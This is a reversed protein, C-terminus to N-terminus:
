DVQFRSDVKREGPRRKTYEKSKLKQKQNTDTQAGPVTYLLGLGDM